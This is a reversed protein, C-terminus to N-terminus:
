KLANKLEHFLNPNSVIITGGYLNFDSGDCASVRGGAERVLLEGAAMDWPQLNFEWYGDLRGCAVFAMDLAASGERRIGMSKTYLDKFLEFNRHYNENHEYPFGTALLSRELTTVGSVHIAKGNLTAGQGDVAEFHEDHMPDYVIGLLTRANYTLAISVNFLPFGHMFNTTGDLPDVVWRYPSDSRKLDSEEALIQHDPFADSIVSKIFAESRKDVDTVANVRGKWEVQHQDNLGAMIIDGAGHAAKRAIELFRDTM